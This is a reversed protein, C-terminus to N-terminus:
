RFTPPQLVRLNRSTAPLSATPTVFEYCLLPSQSLISDHSAVVSCVRQRLQSSRLCIASMLYDLTARVPEVARAAPHRAIRMRTRRLQLPGLSALEGLPRLRHM